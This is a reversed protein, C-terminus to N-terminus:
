REESLGQRGTGRQGSGQRGGDRGGGHASLGEACDGLGGAADHAGDVVRDGHGGRVGRVSGVVPGKLADDDDAHDREGNRRKHAAREGGHEIGGQARENEHVAMQAKLRADDVVDGLANVALPM